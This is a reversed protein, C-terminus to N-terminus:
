RLGRRRRIAWEACLAVAFPVIWWPSRMPHVTRRTDPRALAQVHGVVPALNASTVAVGGTAESVLPLVDEESARLPPPAAGAKVILLTDASAGTATRVRVNYSGPGSADFRGEYVGLEACPWMRIADRAGGASIWEARIEPFSSRGAATDYETRRLRVRVRVPAGPEAVGPDLSVALAPPAALAAAGIVGRWFSRFATDEAGRYRWADLAGSFVIRGDGQPWALIVPWTGAVQRLEAIAIAERAAHRPVAFESARLRAPSGPELAAPTDLLLEDFSRVPLLSVYAGTPRRDPLFVVAGGRVTAFRDVVEVESARLEEPAGVVAADFRVLRDFSLAPPAEGGRAEIAKSPRVVSAIEFAPDAELATRVFGAAWSPRPELVLVRLPRPQVVVRLDAVNDGEATEDDFPRAALRLVHVGPGPPVFSIGVRARGDASWVHEARGVEIGEQELVFVSTRGAVSTAHVDAAIVASQGPLMPPPEHVGLIRVNPGDLAITSVPVGDPVLDPNVAAGIFIAASPPEGGSIRVDHGLADRLRARVDAAARGTGAHVDIALPMPRRLALAPDVAGGLAIAIAVARLTATM